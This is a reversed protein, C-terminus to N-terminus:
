DVDLGDKRMDSDKGQGFFAKKTKEKAKKFTEDIIKNNAISNWVKM